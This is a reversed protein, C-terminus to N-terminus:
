LRDCQHDSDEREDEMKDAVDKRLFALGNGVMMAGCGDCRKGNGSLSLSTKSAWTETKCFGCEMLVRKGDESYDVAGCFGRRTKGDLVMQGTTKKM